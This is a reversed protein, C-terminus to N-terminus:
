QSPADATERALADLNIAGSKSHKAKIGYPSRVEPILKKL